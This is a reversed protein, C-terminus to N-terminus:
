PQREGTAYQWALTKIRNLARDGYTAVIARNAPGYDADMGEQRLAFAYTLAISKQPLKPTCACERVIQGLPDVMGITVGEPPTVDLAASKAPNSMPPEPENPQQCMGKCGGPEPCTAPFEFPCPPRWDTRAFEVRTVVPDADPALGHMRRFAALFADRTPELGMHAIGERVADEDTIATLPERRVDLIERYTRIAWTPCYRPILVSVRWPWPYCALGSPMTADPKTVLEGDCRYAVIDRSDRTCSAAPVLAECVALIDGVRFREDFRRTVDKEGARIARVLPDLFPTRRTKM